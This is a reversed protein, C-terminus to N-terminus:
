VNNVEFEVFFKEGSIVKTIRYQGNKLEFDPVLSFLAINNTDTYENSKDPYVFALDTEALYEQLNTLKTWGDEGKYELVFYYPNYYFGQNDNDCIKIKFGNQTAELFTIDINWATRDKLDEKPYTHTTEKLSSNINKHIQTTPPNQQKLDDTKGNIEFEVSFNKGSIVKIIRYKGAKLEFNPVLSFLTINNTDTYNNNEDPFVVAIDENALHEQLNTLKIWSGNSKYELIFYYPNYYFGQNDNDCIKIKFGSKTAELFSIEINWATRTKLKSVLYKQEIATEALLEKTINEAKATSSERLTDDQSFSCAGLILLLCFVALLLLKNIRM